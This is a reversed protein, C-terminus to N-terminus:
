HLGAQKVKDQYTKSVPVILENQIVLQLKRQQKNVSVVADTAVWWSRHTQLGPYPALSQIADKFRMLLLHHGKDTYVKVYHDSMEMCLLKGRKEVPLGLMFENLAMDGASEQEDRVEQLAVKQQEAHERFFSILTIVGGIM